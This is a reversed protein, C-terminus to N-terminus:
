PSRPTRAAYFRRGVPDVAGTAVAGPAASVGRNMPIAEVLVAMRIWTRM